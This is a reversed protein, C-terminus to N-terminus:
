FRESEELFRERWLLSFIAQQNSNASQIQIADGPLLPWEQIDTIIFDAPANAAAGVQYRIALGTGTTTSSSLILASAGQKQRNDLSGSLMTAASDSDLNTTAQQLTPLDAAATNIFTIREFIAIVNSGAPNRLRGASAVAAVGTVSFRFAYTNWGELYRNERGNFFVFTSGIESSLQPSPPGGKLTLLKQLFRNYRGVLIENFRAMM